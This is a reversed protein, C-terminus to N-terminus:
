REEPGSRSRRNVSEEGPEEPTAARIVVSREAAQFATVRQTLAAEGWGEEPFHVRYHIARLAESVSPEAPDIAAAEIVRFDAPLEAGLRAAVDAADAPGLLELDM